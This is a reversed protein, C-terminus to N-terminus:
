TRAAKKTLAIHGAQTAVYGGVAKQIYGQEILASAIHEPTVKRMLGGHTVNELEKIHEAKM